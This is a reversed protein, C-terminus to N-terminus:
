IWLCVCVSCRVSLWCLTVSMPAGRAADWPSSYCLDTVVAGLPLLRSGPARSLHSSPLSPLLSAPLSAPFLFSGMHLPSCLLARSDAAPVAEDLAAAGPFCYLAPLIAAPAEQPGGLFATAGKGRSSQRVLNAGDTGLCVLSSIGVNGATGM